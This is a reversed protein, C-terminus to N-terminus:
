GRIALSSASSAEQSLVRTSARSQPLKFVNSWIMGVMPITMPIAQAAHCKAWAVKPALRADFSTAMWLLAKGSKSITMQTHTARAAQPRRLLRRARLAQRPALLRHRSLQLHAHHLTPPRRTLHRRILRRKIRHRQSAMPNLNIIRTKNKKELRRWLMSSPASKLSSM